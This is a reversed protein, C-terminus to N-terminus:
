HKPTKAARPKLALAPQEVLYWSLAALCLTLAASWGFLIFVSTSAGLYLTICQQVPWAYLYTGYSYDGYGDLRNICPWSSTGVAISAVPVLLLYGLTFQSAFLLIIGTVLAAFLIRPSLLEPYIAFLSGTFFFLSFRPFFYWTGPHKMTALAAEGGRVIFVALIIAIFAPVAYKLYSRSLKAIALLLLYCLFELPITWLSGNIAAIQLGTGAFADFTRYNPYFLLNTFAKTYQLNTFLQPLSKGTVLPSLVLMTLVFAVAMAPWLRLLRRSLFRLPSPDRLWSATILYGSVSFFILVALAGFTSSPLALPEPRGSIAFMHSFLVMLAALLRLATFNNTTHSM